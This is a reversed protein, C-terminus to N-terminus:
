LDRNTEKDMPEGEAPVTKYSLYLPQNSLVEQSKIQVTGLHM